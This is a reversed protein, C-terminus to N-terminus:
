ALSGIQAADQRRHAIRTDSVQVLCPDVEVQVVHMHGHLAPAVGGVALFVALTHHLLAFDGHTHQQAPAVSHVRHPGTIEAM